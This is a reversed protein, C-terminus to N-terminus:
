HCSLAISLLGKKMGKKGQALHAHRPGYNRPPALLLEPAGPGLDCAIKADICGANFYM